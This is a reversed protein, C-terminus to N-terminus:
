HDLAQNFSTGCRFAANVPGFYFCFIEGAGSLNLIVRLVILVAYVMLNMLIIRILGNNPRNFAYKLEEAFRNM